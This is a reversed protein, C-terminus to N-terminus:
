HNSTPFSLAFPSRLSRRQKTNLHVKAKFLRDYVGHLVPFPIGIELMSMFVWTPDWDLEASKKELILIIAGTFYWSHLILSLLHLWAHSDYKGLPFYRESHVYTKGLTVIKKSIITIRDSPSCPASDRLETLFSPHVNRLPWVVTVIGDQWPCSTSMEDYHFSIQHIKWVPTKGRDIIERWLTEILTPDYHGACHVIALKCEALM